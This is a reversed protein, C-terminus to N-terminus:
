ASPSYMDTLFNRAEAGDLAATLPCVYEHSRRRVFPRRFGYQTIHPLSPTHTDFPSHPTKLSIPCFHLFFRLVGSPKTASTEWRERLSTPGCPPQHGQCFFILTARHTSLSAATAGGDLKGVYASITM